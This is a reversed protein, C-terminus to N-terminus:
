YLEAWNQPPNDAAGVANIQYTSGAPVIFVAGGVAGAGNFQWNWRTIQQGDVYSIINSAGDAPNSSASVMIPYPRSNTYQVGFSRSVINWTTNWGLGTPGPLSSGQGLVWQGVITGPSMPNATPDAQLQSTSVSTSGTINTANVTTASVTTATVVNFISSGNADRSVITSDDANPTSAKWGPGTFLGTTILVYGAAGANALFKTTNGSDQYPISGTLGGLLNKAYGVQLSGTSVFATTNEATQYPIQNTTGGLLNASYGIQVTTTNQYALGNVGASLAIQGTTGATVFETVGIASQYVLAGVSGGNLANAHVAANVYMSGTNAFATVNPSAQYAFQVQTSTGGLLNASYGVQITSTNTFVPALGGQSVLITGTTGTNTFGTTTPAIQYLVQGSQGGFINDATNIVLKGNYHIAGGVWLDGGIGVGGKVVLAGTNTSRAKVPSTVKVGGGYLVDTALVINGSSNHIDNKIVLENNHKYLSIKGNSAGTPDDQSTIVVGDPHQFFSRGTIIQGPGPLTLDDKIFFKNTTQTYTQNGFYLNLGDAAQATGWFKGLTTITTGTNIRFPFNAIPPNPSFSDTSDIAVTQNQVRHEIIWKIQGTEDFVPTPFEGTTVTPSIPTYFSYPISTTATTSVRGYFNNSLTVYGNDSNIATVLTDPPIGPGLILQYVAIPGTDAALLTSDVILTNYAFNRDTPVGLVFTSTTPISSYAPNSGGVTSWTNRNSYISLIGNSTNVWIDGHSVLNTSTSVPDAGQQWVGGAPAWQQGTATTNIKLKNTSNDFWLQGQIPNVPATSNSFNELLHLFNEATKQGYNPYGRGILNLSTDTTNIGPAMDPVSISTIKTPDTFNLTFPM